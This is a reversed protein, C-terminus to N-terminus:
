HMSEVYAALAEIEQDTLNRAFTQMVSAAPRESTKLVKLQAVVYRSHQAALRPAVPTGEGSAGHCAVCAVVGADPKGTHYLKDGLRLQDATATVTSDTVHQQAFWTAVDQIENDSLLHAMGWMYDRAAANARSQERYAKLQKVLYDARQGALRPFLPSESNGDLGHCNVCLKAVPAPADAAMAYSSFLAVALAVFCSTTRMTTGM